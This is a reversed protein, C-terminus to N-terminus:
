TSAHVVEDTVDETDIACATEPVEEPGPDPSINRHKGSDPHEERVLTTDGWPARPKAEPVTVAPPVRTLQVVAVHVWILDSNLRMTAKCDPCVLIIGPIDPGSYRYITFTCHDMLGRILYRNYSVTLIIVCRPPATRYSAPSM